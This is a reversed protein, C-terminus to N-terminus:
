SSNSGEAPGSAAGGGPPEWRPMEPPGGGNTSVPPEPGEFATHQPGFRPGTPWPNPPVSGRPVTAGAPGLHLVKGSEPAYRAGRFNETNDGGTRAACAVFTRPCTTEASADKCRAGQYVLRCLSDGVQLGARSRLGVGGIVKMNMFVHGGSANSIKGTVPEWATVYSGGIEKALIILTADADTWGDLYARTELDGEIDEITCSFGSASPNGGVIAGPKWGRPTYTDGDHIIVDLGSCIRLPSSVDVFLLYRFARNRSNLLALFDAPITM